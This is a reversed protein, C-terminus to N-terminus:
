PLMEGFHRISPFQASDERLIQSSANSKYFLHKIGFRRAVFLIEESDDVFLSRANSFGSRQQAAEWFQTAEKSYGVDASSIIQDLYPRLPVRNLKIAISKPHANTLLVVKKKAEKLFALFPFVGEHVKVRDAVSEKLAPLDLGFRDSWYHIDTWLLNGKQQAYASFLTEKAQSFSIGKKEAYQQPVFEEWFYDDFHKDLLTGDMDLLAFDIEEWPIKKKETM